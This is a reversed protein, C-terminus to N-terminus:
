IWNDELLVLIDNEFVQIYLIEKLNFNKEITEKIKTYFSKQESQKNKLNLDILYINSIFLLVVVLLLFKKRLM